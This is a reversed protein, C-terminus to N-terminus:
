RPALIEVEFFDSNLHGVAGGEPLNLEEPKGVNRLRMPFSGVVKEGAILEKKDNDKSGPGAQMENDIM